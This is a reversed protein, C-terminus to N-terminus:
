RYFVFRDAVWKQLLALVLILLFLMFSMASALSFNNYLFATQYVLLSDTTTAFAPGGAGGHPGGTLAYIQSFSQLTNITSLVVVLARM